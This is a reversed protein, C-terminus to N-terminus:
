PRRYDIDCSHDKHLGGIINNLKNFGTDVGILGDKNFSDEIEDVAERLAQTIDGSWNKDNKNVTIAMLDRMARDTKESWDEANAELLEHAVHAVQRANSYKKLEKFYSAANTTVINNQLDGLYVTGGAAELTGEFELREAVHMFDITRNNRQLHAIAKFILQHERLYFDAETLDFRKGIQFIAGLVAQEATQSYIKRM